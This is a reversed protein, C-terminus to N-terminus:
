SLKLESTLKTKTKNTCDVAYVHGSNLKVM